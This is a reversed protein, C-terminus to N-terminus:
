LILPPLSFLELFISFTVHFPPTKQFRHQLFFSFATKKDGLVCFRPSRTRFSTLLTSVEVWSLVQRLVM